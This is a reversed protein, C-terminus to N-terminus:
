QGLLTKSPQSSATNARGLARERRAATAAPGQSTTKTQEDFGSLFGSFAGSLPNNKPLARIQSVDQGARSAARGKEVNEPTTFSESM